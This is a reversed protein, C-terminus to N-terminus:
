GDGTGGRENDTGERSRELRARAWVIRVEAGGAAANAFRVGAGTRALLTRAIFVGLGAHGGGGKATTVYPRGLRALVEPAFGPGDDRLIVWAHGGNWGTYALIHHGAFRTANAVLTGLAHLIEPSRPVLPEPGEATEDRIIRFRTGPQEYPEAATAVLGTLRMPEQGAGGRSRNSLRQLIERCRQSEAVLLRADEGSPSGAPLEHALERAVVAITGLPTGLEHATAAALGGLDALRQEDALAARTAALADARRQAERALAAVYGAIFVVAIVLAVWIGGVYLSPLKVGPPPWPLPAHVSALLSIAAVAAAALILTSVRSLLSASVTVPALILLAFPNTLGGTLGLLVTLQILDYALYAAAAGDGLWTECSFRAHAYLNLAVSAGVTAGAAALPLEYGLLGAVVGLAATQGAVAAWRTFVLTRLRVRGHEGPTETQAPDAM